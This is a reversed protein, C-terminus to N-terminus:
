AQKPEDTYVVGPCNESYFMRIFNVVFKFIKGITLAIWGFPSVLFVLVPLVVKKFFTAIPQGVKESLVGSDVLAVIGMVVAILFIFGAIFGLTPMLHIVFLQMCLWSVGQYLLTALYYLVWAIVAAAPVTAVFLLAKCLLKSWYFISSFIKNWDKEIQQKSQYEARDKINQEELKKDYADSLERLKTEYNTTFIKRFAAYYMVSPNIHWHDALKVFFAPDSFSFGEGMDERIHREFRERGKILKLYDPNRDDYVTNILKSKERQRRDIGRQEKHTSVWADIATTTPEIGIAVLGKSLFISVKILVALMFILPSLLALINTFWFLPCFNYRLARPLEERNSCLLVFMALQTRWYNPPLNVTGGWAEALIRPEQFITFISSFFNKM